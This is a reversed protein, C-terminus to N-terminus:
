KLEVVYYVKGGYGGAASVSVVTDTNKPEVVEKYNRKYVISDHRSKKILEKVEKVTLM